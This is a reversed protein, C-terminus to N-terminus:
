GKARRVAIVEFGAQIAAQTLRHDFSVFSLVCRFGPQLTEAVGRHSEVYVTKREPYERCWILAAALQFVNGVM